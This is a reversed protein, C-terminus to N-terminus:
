ITDTADARPGPDVAAQWEARNKGSPIASIGYWLTLIELWQQEATGLPSISEYGARLAARAAAPTPSWDTFRTALYVSARALDDIRPARGVEEFDLVAVVQGARTLINAARYDHHVLQQAAPPPPASALLQRLRASAEQAPGRDSREWWEDLRRPLAEGPGPVASKGPDRRRLADHIRALMQGASRVAREDAVDLWDGDVEPLVAVSLPGSPGDLELRVEGDASPIPAAVLIGPEAIDRVLATSARLAEFREPDGSWKVIFRGGGGDRRPQEGEGAAGRIWGPGKSVGTVWAIVNQDSIVLRPCDHVTIGWHARLITTIWDRAGGLGDFGFRSRLAEHPDTTEWLMSLGPELM